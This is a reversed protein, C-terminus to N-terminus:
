GCSLGSREEDDLVFGLESGREGRQPRHDGFADEDHEIGFHNRERSLWGFFCPLRVPHMPVWNCFMRLRRGKAADSDQLKRVQCM